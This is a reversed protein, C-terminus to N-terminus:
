PIRCDNQINQEREDMRLRNQNKGRMIGIHRLPAIRNQVNPITADTSSDCVYSDYHLLSKMATDMTDMEQM